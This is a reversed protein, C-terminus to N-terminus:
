GLVCVYGDIFYLSGFWVYVFGLMNNDYMDYGLCCMPMALDLCVHSHM